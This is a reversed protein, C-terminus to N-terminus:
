LSFIIQLTYRREADFGLQWRHSEGGRKRADAEKRECEAKEVDARAKEAKKHEAALRDKMEKAERRDIHTIQREIIDHHSQFDSLVRDFRRSFM